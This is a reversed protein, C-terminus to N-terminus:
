LWNDDVGLWDDKEPEEERRDPPEPDMLYRVGLIEAALTNNTECDLLHNAAHSSIKEWVTSVHGKKDKKEVRQEACIQDAYEREVDRCVNWSGRAGADITMRSAIFNKMQNPDMIYLRLGFGAQQKDLM